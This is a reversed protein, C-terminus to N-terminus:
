RCCAPRTDVEAPKEAVVIAEELPGSGALLTEDYARVLDAVGMTVGGESVAYAVETKPYDVCAGDVGEGTLADFRTSCSECVLKDGDLAFSRSYCPPCASARVFLEGDLTYAMFDLLRDELTVSFQSNRANEVAALPITVFDGGVVADIPASVFPGTSLSPTPQAAPEEVLSSDVLPTQPEAVPAVEVGNGGAGTIPAAPVQPAATAPAAACGVLTFLLVVGVLAILWNKRRM